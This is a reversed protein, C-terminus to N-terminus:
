RPPPISLPTHIGPRMGNDVLGAGEEAEKYLQVAKIQMLKLMNLFGNNRSPTLSQQLGLLTIFNPSVFVIESIPEGFLRQVLLAALGKKESDLYARVWVQQYKAKSDEVSQFLNVIEQLKPPLNETSQTSASDVSSSTSSYVKLPIREISISSFRLTKSPVISKSFIFKPHPSHSFKPILMQFPSSISM